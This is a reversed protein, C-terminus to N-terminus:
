DFPLRSNLEQKLERLAQIIQSRKAENSKCYDILQEIDNLIEMNTKTTEFM